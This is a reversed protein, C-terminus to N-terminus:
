IRGRRSLMSALTAHLACRGNHAHLIEYRGQRLMRWLRGLLTIDVLGLGRPINEVKLGAERARRDLPSDAPCLLTATIDSRVNKLSLALDLMHKETGAFVDADTILAINM